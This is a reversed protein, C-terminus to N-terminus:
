SGREQRDTNYGYSCVYQTHTHTHVCTHIYTHTYTRAITNAITRNLQSLLVAVKLSFLLNCLARSALALLRFTGPQEIDPLTRTFKWTVSEKQTRYETVRPNM